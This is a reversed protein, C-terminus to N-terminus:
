GVGTAAHADCEDVGADDVSGVQVTRPEDTRGIKRALFVGDIVVAVAREHGPEDGAVSGRACTGLSPM